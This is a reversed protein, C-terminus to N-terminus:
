PGDEYSDCNGRVLFTPIQLAKEMQRGDSVYDGLFILYDINGEAKIADVVLPWNDHTDSVIALRMM